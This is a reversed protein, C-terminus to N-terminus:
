APIRAILDRATSLANFMADMSGHGVAEELKTLSRMMESYTPLGANKLHVDATAVANIQQNNM